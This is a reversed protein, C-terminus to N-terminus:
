PESRIIDAVEKLVWLGFMLAFPSLGICIPQLLNAIDTM